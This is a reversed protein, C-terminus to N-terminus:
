FFYVINLTYVISRINLSPKFDNNRRRKRRRMRSEV